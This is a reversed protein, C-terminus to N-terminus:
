ETYFVGDPMETAEGVLDTGGLKAMLDFLARAAAPDVPDPAPIGARFGAKLREFEADTKARMMPRIADWAADNEALLAKAERSAAVFGAVLDPYDRIFGGKFVYGLLPTEADLGLTEAAESVLAILRFGNAEMRALYHWYNIAADLEGSQAKQAILPPAGYVQETESKLDSGIHEAYARLILWSKDLPGGAIGITKGKLDALTAISSNEPVAVGGVAKSYPLFVYDKGLGRQRAVWIWDSVMADAGGGQFAIKTAAGGALGLVDLSFGHKEDLKERRITELEWNVTGFKLVAIRLM